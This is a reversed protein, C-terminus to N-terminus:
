KTSQTVLSENESPSELDKDCLSKSLVHSELHLIEKLARGSGAFYVVRTGVSACVRHAPRLHNVSSLPGLCAPVVSPMGPVHYAVPKLNTVRDPKDKNM